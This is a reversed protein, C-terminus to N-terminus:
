NNLRISIRATNSTLKDGSSYTYNEAGYYLAICHRKSFYIELGGGFGYLNKVAPNEKVVSVYGYGEIFPQVPIIMWKALPRVGAKLGPLLHTYKNSKFLKDQYYLYQLSMGGYFPIGKTTMAITLQAAYGNVNEVAASESINSKSVALEFMSQGSGKENFVITCIFFLLIGAKGM